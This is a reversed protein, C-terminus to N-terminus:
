KTGGEADTLKNLENAIDRLRNIYGEIASVTGATVEGQQARDLCPLLYSEVIVKADAILRKKEGEAESEEPMYEHYEHITKQRDIHMEEPVPETGAADSMNEAEKQAEDRGNEKPEQQGAANEILEPEQQMRTEETQQTTGTMSEEPVPMTPQVPAVELQALEEFPEGYLEEWGETGSQGGFIERMANIFQQWSVVERENSRINLLDIDKEEGQLSFMIRGIGSLRVTKVAVGSPALIDMVQEVASEGDIDGGIVAELALFEERQEHFYRHLTKKMLSMDEQEWARPEMLVELDSIAEEEKIQRKIGQIERKTLDPTMLDIVTDPLTLMEQLKAIGYGEFEERLYESYGDKAYRDNTAIYRSVIDKSLGYEVQAFEAVTEYGSEKLIETDRAVKLLYGTRVFGEAQNKLETGLAERFQGYTTIETLKM